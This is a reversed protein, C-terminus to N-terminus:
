ELLVIEMNLIYSLCAGIMRVVFAGNPGSLGFENPEPFGFLFVQFISSDIKARARPPGYHGTTKKREEGNKM